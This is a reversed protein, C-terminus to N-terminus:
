YSGLGHISKFFEEISISQMNLFKKLSVMFNNRLRLAHIKDNIDTVFQNTNIMDGGYRYRAAM